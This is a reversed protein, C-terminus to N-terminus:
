AMQRAVRLGLAAAVLITPLGSAKPALSLDAVWLGKPLWSPRMGDADERGLPVTGGLHGGNLVGDVFPGSVGAGEMIAIAELRAGDLRMRDEPTLTKQVTGDAEVTGKAADALKIMMGVHDRVPRKRWPPHFFHALLDYYPSLMYHERKAYWVMPPEALMDAGEKLGGVTLVVDVWLDDRAELGSAKLLRATGIGGAALVVADANVREASRGEGVEVGIAKGGEVLVRSVPSGTRLVGGKAVLDELYRRTDWKAGTACGLECLGCSVCRAVDVLKPTPKPDMGMGEAVEYMDISTPRWRDRPTHTVGIDAELEEFESTLDIGIDRLGNDGRALNGASITTTGGPALGWVLIMDDEVRTTRLPPFFRTITRESGLLGARKMTHAWGLRRTFPKFEKGAELVTVQHGRTQLERAATAGGAGSGVVVVRM